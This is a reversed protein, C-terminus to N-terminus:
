LLPRNPSLSIAIDFHFKLKADNPATHDWHSSNETNRRRLNNHKHIPASILFHGEAFLVGGYPLETSIQLSMHQNNHVQFTYAALYATHQHLLVHPMNQLFIRTQILIRIM